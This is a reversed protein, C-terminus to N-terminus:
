CSAIILNIIIKAFTPLYFSLLTIVHTVISKTRRNRQRLMSLIKTHPHFSSIILMYIAYMQPLKSKSTHGDLDRDEKEVENGVSTASSFLRWENKERTTTSAPM